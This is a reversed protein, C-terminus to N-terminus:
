LLKKYGQMYVYTLMHLKLFSRNGVYVSRFCDVYVLLMALVTTMSIPCEVSIRLVFMMIKILALLCELFHRGNRRLLQNRFIHFEVHPLLKAHWLILIYRWSNSCHVCNLLCFNAIGNKRNVLLFFLDVDPLLKAVSTSFWITPVRATQAHRQTYKLM